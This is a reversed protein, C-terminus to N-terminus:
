PIAPAPGYKLVRPAATVPAFFRMSAASSLSHGPMKRGSTPHSLPGMVSPDVSALAVSVYSACRLCPLCLVIWAEGTEQWRSGRSLAIRARLDSGMGSVIRGDFGDRGDLEGHELRVGLAARRCGLRARAGDDGRRVFQDTLATELARAPSHEHRPPARPAAPRPGRRTMRVADVSQASRRGPAGVRGLLAGRVDAAGHSGLALASNFSTMPYFRRNFRFVYENLYAGLHQQSVGHHQPAM